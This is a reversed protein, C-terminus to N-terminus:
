VTHLAATQCNPLNGMLLEKYTFNQPSNMDKAKKIICMMLKSSYIQFDGYIGWCKEGGFM